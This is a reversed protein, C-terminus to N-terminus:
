KALLEKVRLLHDACGGGWNALDLIFEALEGETPAANPIPALGCGLLSDPVQQRVVVPAIPASCAFLASCLLIMSLSKLMPRM